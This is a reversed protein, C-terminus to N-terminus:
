HLQPNMNQKLIQVMKGADDMPTTAKDIQFKRKEEYVKVEEELTKCRELALDREATLHDLKRELEMIEANHQICELMEECQGYLIDINNNVGGTQAVDIGEYTAVGNTLIRESRESNTRRRPVDPKERNKTEDVSVKRSNIQHIDKPTSNRQFNIKLSDIEKNKSHLERELKSCKNQLAVKEQKGAELDKTLREKANTLESINFVMKEKENRSQHLLAKHLSKLEELEKRLNDQRNKESELSVCAVRLEDRLKASYSRARGLESKMESYKKEM